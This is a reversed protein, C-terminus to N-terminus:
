WSALASAPRSSTASVSIVIANMKRAGTIMGSKVPSSNVGPARRREADPEALDQERDDDQEPQGPERDPDEVDVVVERDGRDRRQDPVEHDDGPQDAQRRQELAVVLEVGVRDADDRAREDLQQHHDRRQPPDAERDRRM